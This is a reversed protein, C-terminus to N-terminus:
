IRLGVEFDAVGGKLCRFLERPSFFGCTKSAIEDYKTCNTTLFVLKSQMAQLRLIKAM